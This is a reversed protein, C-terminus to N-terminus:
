GPSKGISEVTRRRTAPVGIRLPSIGDAGDGAAGGFGAADFGAGGFDACDSGAGDIDPGDSTSGAGARGSREPWCGRAPHLARGGYHVAGSGELDQLRRLSTTPDAPPGLPM